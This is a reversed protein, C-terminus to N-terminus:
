RREVGILLQRWWRCVLESLHGDSHGRNIIARYLGGDDERVTIRHSFIVRLSNQSTRIVRRVGLERHGVRLSHEHAIPGFGWGCMFVRTQGPEITFRSTRAAAQPASAGLLVLASLLSVLWAHSRM